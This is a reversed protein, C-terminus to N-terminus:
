WTPNAKRTKIFALKMEAANDAYHARRHDNPCLVILNSLIDLGNEKLPVIHHVEAFIANTSTRFGPKGCYECEGHSREMALKRLFKSRRTVPTEDTTPEPDLSGKQDIYSIANGRTLTLEGTTSDYAARWAIPDLIRQQKDRHKILVHVPLRHKIIAKYIDDVSNGKGKRGRAVYRTYYLEDPLTPVIINDEWISVVAIDGEIWAWFTNKSPDNAHAWHNLEMGAEKLLDYIRTGKKLRPLSM